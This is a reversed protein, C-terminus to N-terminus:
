IIQNRLRKKLVVVIDNYQQFKKHLIYTATLQLFVPTNSYLNSVMHYYNLSDCLFSGELDNKSVHMGMVEFTM